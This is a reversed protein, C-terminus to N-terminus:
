GVEELKAGFRVLWAVDHTQEGVVDGRHLTISRPLSADEVVRYRKYSRGAFPAPALQGSANVAELQIALRREVSRSMVPAPVAPAAAPPAIPLKQAPVREKRGRAGRAAAPQAPPAEPAPDDDLAPIPRGDEAM